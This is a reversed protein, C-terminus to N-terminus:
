CKMLLPSLWLNRWTVTVTLKLVHSFRIDNTFNLSWELILYNVFWCVNRVLVLPLYRDDGGDVLWHLVVRCWWNISITMRMLLIYWSGMRRLYLELSYCSWTVSNVGPVHLTWNGFWCCLSAPSFECMSVFVTGWCRRMWSSLLVDRSGVVLQFGWCLKPNFVTNFQWFNNSSSEEFSGRCTEGFEQFNRESDFNTQVSTVGFINGRLECWQYLVFTRSTIDHAKSMFNKMPRRWRGWLICPMLSLLCSGAPGHFICGAYLQMLFVRISCLMWLPDRERAVCWV